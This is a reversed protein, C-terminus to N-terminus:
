FETEVTQSPILICHPAYNWVQFLGSEKRVNYDKIICQLFFILVDAEFIAAVSFYSLTVHTVKTQFM